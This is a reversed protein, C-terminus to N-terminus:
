AAPRGRGREDGGKAAGRFVLHSRRTTGCINLGDCGDDLLWRCLTTFRDLDPELGATVPTAAAAIVGRLTRKTM